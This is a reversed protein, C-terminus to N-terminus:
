QTSGEVFEYFISGDPHMCPVYATGHGTDVIRMSIRYRATINMANAGVPVGYPSNYAVDRMAEWKQRRSMRKPGTLVIENIGRTTVEFTRNGLPGKVTRIKTM